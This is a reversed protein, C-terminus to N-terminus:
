ATRMCLALAFSFFIPVLNECRLQPACLARTYILSCTTPFKICNSIYSLFFVVILYDGFEFYPSFPHFFLLGISIKAFKIECFVTKWIFFAGSCVCVCMNSLLLSFFSLSPSFPAGFAIFVVDLWSFFLASFIIFDYCATSETPVTSLVSTKDRCFSNTIEVGFSPMLPPM